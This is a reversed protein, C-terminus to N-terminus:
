FFPQMSAMQTGDVAIIKEYRVPQVMLNVQIVVVQYITKLTSGQDM